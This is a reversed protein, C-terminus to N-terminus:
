HDLADNEVVVRQAPADALLHVVAVGAFRVVTSQKMPLTQPQQFLHLVAPGAQVHIGIRAAVLGQGADIALWAALRDEVEM